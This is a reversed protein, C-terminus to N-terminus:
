RWHPPYTKQFFNLAEIRKAWQAIATPALETLQLEPKRFTLRTLYAVFPYLVYDAASPTDGALFKAGLERAFYDLEERLKARAENVRAENAPAGDKFFHEEMIPDLAEIGLYLEAERALRRIRARERVGGPYLSKAADTSAFREELYELIVTSEWLAFGEDVVTPVHHRPNIAIFEPKKTDGAAFSLVKLNYPVAKHELALWVRWSPASGHGHYFDLAM